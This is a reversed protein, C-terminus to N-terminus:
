TIQVDEISQAHAKKEDVTTNNIGIETTTFADTVNRYHPVFNVAVAYSTAAVFFTLPVTMAIGMDNHMDAVAGM